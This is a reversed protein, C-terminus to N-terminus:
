FCHAPWPSACIARLSLLGKEVVVKGDVIVTDVSAGTTSYVLNYVVNSLPPLEIGSTDFLVLDAFKGPELSGLEHEARISKAGPAPVEGEPFVFGSGPEYAVVARVKPNKM